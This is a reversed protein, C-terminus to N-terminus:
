QCSIPYTVQNLKTCYQNHSKHTIATPKMKKKLKALKAPPKRKSIYVYIDLYLSHTLSM